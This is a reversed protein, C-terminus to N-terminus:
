SVIGALKKLEYFPIRESNGVKVTKIDGHQMARWLTTYSINLVKASETKKLLSLDNYIKEKM